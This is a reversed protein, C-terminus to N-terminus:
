SPVGAARLDSLFRERLTPHTFPQLGREYASLRFDPELRLLNAVVAEAQERKGLASLAAALFRLNASFNPNENRARRSFQVAAELDGNAYHALALRTEFLYLAQDLPSLRLAQEARAVAEAGRGLYALTGSSWMWAFAHNPCSELARDFFVMAAEHERRLFSLIQGHASLALAHGPDLAIARTSLNTAAETAATIDEAWRQGIWLVHWWAAYAMPLPFGPDEAIAEDLYAKAQRSTERDLSYILHVGRLTRDYATLSEPRKRLTAQLETARINPAMGAVIRQVIRDQLDFVGEERGGQRDAWLSQGTEVHTLQTAVRIAPGNRRLNGSLVYRVGLARGASVPDAPTGGTAATTSGRSIVALERLGSLSLIVDDMIGAALYADAPNGGVNSLPLVAISPLEGLRRPQPAAHATGLAYARFPREDNKFRLLGLDVLVEDLVDRLAQAVAESVVTGGPAAHEQLRATLNVADGFVGDETILVEGTHIAIRLALPTAAFSGTAAAGAHAAEAWQVARHVGSSGAFIILAGDGRLEGIDGGLREAAPRLMSHYLGVIRGYTGVEDTAMLRSYGVVDAFVVAADTPRPPAAM